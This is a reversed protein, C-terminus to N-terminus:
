DSEVIQKFFDPWRTKARQGNEKFYKLSIGESSQQLRDRLTAAEIVCM